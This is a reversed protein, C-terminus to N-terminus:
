DHHALRYSYITVVAIPLFVAALTAILLTPAHGTLLAAAVMALGGLMMLLGGFRNTAQWNVPDRMTWPLRIGAFANPQTKPMVNGLVAYLVGLGLVVVRVMDVAIGTGIMVVAIQVALFLGLLSPIVTMMAHRAAEVRERAVVRMLVVLLVVVALAIAPLLLLAGNRPLFGDAEGTFGWHIPLIADAPILAFGAITAAALLVILVLNLPTLLDRRIM